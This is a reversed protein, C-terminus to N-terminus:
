KRLMEVLIRCDSERCMDFGPRFAQQIIPFRKSLTLQQNRASM